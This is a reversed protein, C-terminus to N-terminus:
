NELVFPTTYDHEQLREFLPLKGGLAIPERLIRIQQVQCDIMLNIFDQQVLAINERPSLDWTFIHHISLVSGLANFGFLLKGGEQAAMVVAVEQNQLRIDRIVNASFVDLAMRLRMHNADALAALPSNITLPNTFLTLDDHMLHEQWMQMLPLAAESVNKGLLTKLHVDGYGLAYVVHVSQEPPIPLSTAPLSLAFDQAVTFNEKADFWQQVTIQAFDEAKLLQPLWQARGLARLAPYRELIACLAAVPTHIALEVAQKAGAVIVIPMAFWQAQHENQACLIADVADMLVTYIQADAAMNLAVSLGLTHRQQLQGLIQAHLHERALALQAGSSPKAIQAAYLLLENKVADTPYPRTDPLIFM